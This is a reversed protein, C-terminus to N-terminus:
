HAQKDVRADPRQCKAAVGSRRNGLHARQALREFAADRDDRGAKDKLFQQLSEGAGLRAPLDDRSEIREGSQTGIPTIVDFGCLEPIVAAPGAYLHARDVCQDGPKADPM